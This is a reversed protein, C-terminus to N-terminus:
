RTDEIKMTRLNFWLIHTGRIDGILGCESCVLWWKSAMFLCKQYHTHPCPLDHIKVSRPNMYFMDPQYYIQGNM